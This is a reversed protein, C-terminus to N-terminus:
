TYLATKQKSINQKLNNCRQEHTLCALNKKRMCNTEPKPMLTIGTDYFPLTHIFNSHDTGQFNPVM